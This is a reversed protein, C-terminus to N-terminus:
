TTNAFCHLALERYETRSSSSTMQELASYGDSIGYWLTISRRVGKIIIHCKNLNNPNLTLMLKDGPHFSMNRCHWVDGYHAQVSFHCCVLYLILTYM